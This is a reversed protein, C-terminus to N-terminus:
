DKQLRRALADVLFVFDGRELGSVTLQMTGAEPRVRVDLDGYRRVFVENWDREDEPEYGLTKLVPMVSKFVSVKRREEEQRRARRAKDAEDAKRAKPLFDTAFKKAIRAAEEAVPKDANWRLTLTRVGDKRASVSEVSCSEYFGGWARAQIYMLSDDGELITWGYKENRETQQGAFAAVFAAHLAALQAAIRTKKEEKTIM